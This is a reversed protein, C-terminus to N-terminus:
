SIPKVILTISDSAVIEVTSGAKIDVDSQADWLSGHFSVKGRVHPSIAAEVTARKGVFEEIEGERGRFWSLKGSLMGKLWKRLTVLMLVSTLLFIILQGTLSVPVLLTILAVIWAGVGFFLIVVGASVFEILMLVLGILFWLLPPQTWFNLSDM